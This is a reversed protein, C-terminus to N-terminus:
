TVRAGRKADSTRPAAGLMVFLFLVAIGVPVVLHFEPSEVPGTILDNAPQKGHNGWINAQSPM